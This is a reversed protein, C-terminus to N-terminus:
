YRGLTPLKHIKYNEFKTRYKENGLSDFEQISEKNYDVIAKLNGNLHYVKHVGYRHPLHRGNNLSDPLLCFRGEYWTQGNIYPAKVYTSDVSIHFDKLPIVFDRGAAPFGGWIHNGDAYFNLMLISDKQGYYSFQFGDKQGNIYYGEGHDTEYHGNLSDNVYSYKEILKGNWKRIWQGQKWGNSDTYNISDSYDVKSIRKHFSDVQIEGTDKMSESQRETEKTTDTGCSIM